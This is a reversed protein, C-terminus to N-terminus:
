GNAIQISQTLLIYLAKQNEDKLFAMHKEITQTDNRSAPGTQAEAPPLLQVKDATELILPKLIDFPIANDSCIRNGIAYLHNTFNNVFVAAVHLAQRQGSSIKYHLPSISQALQELVSYDSEQGSELCVPIKTFDVDKNKSFTQLPYFVGRRNKPDLQEMAVSGSTHVVLRGEFPLQSSVGAIANDSVAIIYIDAKALNDFSSTIKEPPLLHALNEPHRAYAQVLETHASNSLAKILHQAVNGSGIIVAKFM